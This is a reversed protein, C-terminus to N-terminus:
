IGSVQVCGKPEPKRQNCEDSPLPVIPYVRHTPAFKPLQALRGYRRMDVWRHGYEGFLSYRRNYLLEDVLNGAFSPELAPLGGAVTRIVNLDAIAATRNNLGIYAEARLLILEENRILAIPAVNTAAINLRTNSSIGQSTLTTTSTAVKATRLDLSNDARRQAEALFSPHAVLSRPAPDFMPNTADGSATTFVHYVGNALTAASAPTTAIFSENLANLAEQWRGREIEMRAKLARNVRLFTSPTNFGTFGSTLTFAFSTGANNLHTAAEDLLAVARTYGADKTVFDGLQKATPDVTLVIGFTDRVRLQEWFALAEMTKSFGKVGEKQATTYNGVKDVAGLITEVQLVQRYTNTWGVDVGFGGPTLPEVLWSLVFRADAQDLNYMERGFIGLTQGFTGVGARAGVLLGVVATNVTGADPNNLLGDVNPANFNPVTVEKCGGMLTAASVLAAVTMRRLATTHRM